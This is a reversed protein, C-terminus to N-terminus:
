NLILKDSNEFNKYSSTIVRENPELGKLFKM